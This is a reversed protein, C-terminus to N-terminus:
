IYTVGGTVKFNDDVGAGAYMSSESVDSDKGRARAPWAWDRVHGM